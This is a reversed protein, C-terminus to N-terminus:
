VINKAEFSEDRRISAFINCCSELSSALLHDEVTPDSNYKLLRAVFRSRPLTSIGFNAVRRIGADAEPCCPMLPSM